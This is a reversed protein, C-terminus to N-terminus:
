WGDDRQMRTTQQLTTKVRHCQRHLCELNGIDFALGEDDDLSIIHNCEYYYPDFQNGSTKVLKGCTACLGNALRWCEKRLIPWRKDNYIHKHKGSM